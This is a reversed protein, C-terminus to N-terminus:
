QTFLLLERFIDELKNAVTPWTMQRGFDYASRRARNRMGDDKLLATITTQLFQDDEFPVLFGRGDALLEKAYLYPTSVVAKGMGVAWSLTGSVYQDEQAYPTLYVDTAKLYALLENDDLFKNIFRVNKSLGLQTVNYELGERYAEGEYQKVLPHTEGLILYLANPVSKIVEPLAKLVFQINKNRSILGFTTIIPVNSPFGLQTKADALTHAFPIDPVGHPVVLIKSGSIGYVDILM